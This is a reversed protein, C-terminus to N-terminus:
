SPRLRRARRERPAQAESRVGGCREAAVDAHQPRDEAVHQDLLLPRPQELEDLLDAALGARGAAVSGDDVDVRVEANPLLREHEAGEAEVELERVEGLLVMPQAAAAFVRVVSPDRALRELARELLEAVDVLACVRCRNAEDQRRM